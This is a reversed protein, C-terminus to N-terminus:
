LFLCSGLSHPTQEITGFIVVGSRLTLRRFEATRSSRLDECCNLDKARSRAQIKRDHVVSSIHNMCYDALPLIRFM